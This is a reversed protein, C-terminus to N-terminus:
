REKIMDKFMREVPIGLPPNDRVYTHNPEKDSLSALWTHRMDIIERFRKNIEERLQEETLNRVENVDKKIIEEWDMNIV